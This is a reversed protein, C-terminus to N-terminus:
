SEHSHGASWPLGAPLLLSLMSKLHVVDSLALAVHTWSWGSGDGGRPRGQARITGFRIAKPEEASSVSSLPVAPTRGHEGSFDKSGIVLGGPNNQM